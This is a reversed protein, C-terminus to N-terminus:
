PAALGTKRVKQPHLKYDPVFCLPTGDTGHSRWEAASRPQSRVADFLHNDPHPFYALFCSKSLGLCWADVISAVDEIQRRFKGVADKNEKVSHELAIQELRQAQEELREEVQESSQPQNDEVDFAHVVASITRQVAGYAQKGAEIVDLKEQKEQVCQERAAIEDPKA